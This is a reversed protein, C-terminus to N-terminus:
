DEPAHLIDFNALEAGDCGHIVHTGDNHSLSNTAIHTCSESLSAHFPRNLLLITNCVTTKKIRDSREDESYNFGNLLVNDHWLINMDTSPSLAKHIYHGNFFHSFYVPSGEPGTKLVSFNRDDYAARLAIRYDIKSTKIIRTSRPGKKDFIVTSHAIQENKAMAVAICEIARLLLLLRMEDIKGGINLEGMMVVQVSLPIQAFLCDLPKSVSSGSINVKKKFAATRMFMDTLAFSANDCTCRPCLLYHLGIRGVSVAIDCLDGPSKEGVHVYLTILNKWIKSVEVALDRNITSKNRRILFVVKMNRLVFHPICDNYSLLPKVIPLLMKGVREAWEREMPHKFARFLHFCVSRLNTPVQSNLKLMDIQSTDTFTSRLFRFSVFMGKYAVAFPSVELNQFSSLGFLKCQENSIHTRRSQEVTRGLPPETGYM